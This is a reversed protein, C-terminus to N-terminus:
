SRYVGNVKSSTVRVVTPATTGVAANVQASASSTLTGVYAGTGTVVVTIYKNEDAALLTYTSATAGSIAAGSIDAYTGNAADARRWQYTVTAASPTMVGATLTQGVRATGTTTAIATLTQANKTATCTASMSGGNVGSCTWTVSTNAGPFAPTTPTSSGTECFTFNGYGVADSPYSKAATGCTGNIAVGIVQASANSMVTGIYAGTGTVVVTIYKNEDAALLTYTSATAGSINV